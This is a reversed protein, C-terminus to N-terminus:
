KSINSIANIKKEELGDDYGKDYIKGIRENPHPTRPRGHLASNKGLGYILRDGLHRFISSIFGKKKLKMKNDGKIKKIFNGIIYM